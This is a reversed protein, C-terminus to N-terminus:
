DMVEHTLEKIFGKLHELVERGPPTIRYIKRVKGEVIRDEVKLAGDRELEHLIPYLTGPSIRYGHRRLEDMM